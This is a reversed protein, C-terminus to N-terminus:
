SKPPKSFIVIEIKLETKSELDPIDSNLSIM